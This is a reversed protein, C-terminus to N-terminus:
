ILEHTGQEIDERINKIDLDSFASQEKDETMQFRGLINNIKGLSKTMVKIRDVLYTIKSRLLKQEKNDETQM